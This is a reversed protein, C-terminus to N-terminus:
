GTPSINKNWPAFNGYPLVNKRQERPGGCFSDDLIKMVGDAEQGTMIALQFTECEPLSFPQPLQKCFWAAQALGMGSARSLAQAAKVIGVRPNVGELWIVYKPFIQM